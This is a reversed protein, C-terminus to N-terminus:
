RVKGVVNMPVCELEWEGLYSIYEQKPIANEWAWV